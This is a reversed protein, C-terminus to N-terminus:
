WRPERRYTQAIQDSMEAVIATAAIDRLITRGGDYKSVYAGCHVEYLSTRSRDSRVNALGSAIILGLTQPRLKRVRRHVVNAAQEWLYQAAPETFGHERILDAAIRQVLKPRSSPNTNTM